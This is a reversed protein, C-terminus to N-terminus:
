QKGFWRSKESIFIELLASPSIESLSNAKKEYFLASNLQLLLFFDM